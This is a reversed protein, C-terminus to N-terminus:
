RQRHRERQARVWESLARVPATMKWSTSDAYALLEERLQDRNHLLASYERSEGAEPRELDATTVGTARKRMVLLAQEFQSPSESENSPLLQVIDFARGWHARLWWESHAVWPNWEDGPMELVNMGTTEESNSQGFYQSLGPGIVTAILLGDDALLRGLELLWASWSEVLHTFVSFTYILDFSGDPLDLPPWAGVQRITARDGLDDQLWTVSEADVDCGWFTTNPHAEVAPRLMRGAGCGFDLVRKGEFTWADPLVSEVLQWQQRGRSEFVEDPREGPYYWGVRRMLKRPPGPM